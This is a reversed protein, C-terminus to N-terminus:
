QALRALVLALPSDADPPPKCEKQRAQWIQEALDLNREAAEGYRAASVHAKLAEGAKDLLARLEASPTQGICQKTEDLTLAILKVSRSFREAPGLGRMTPDLLLLENSIDLRRRAAQDDPALRLAAQFDRQAARYDGRAFEAEGLGAWADANAPADHLVARFVDAARAPSGALLFMRGMRTRTKLDGPVHDQIQLLEALLEEKSNRQALLDTLELRARLRNEAANENWHGYIARHFYSIAEAVRGEKVLVRAMILSVEGGTADSELLETLTAEADGTRGAALQAEALTRRYERNGREMSIADKIREIAEANEGRQMLVRGQEFLRAAGVRSEARETKALFTDAAFLAAIALFVLGFTGLFSRGAFPTAM